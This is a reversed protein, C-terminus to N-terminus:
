INEIVGPVNKAKGIYPNLRNKFRELEISSLRDTRDKLLAVADIYIKRVEAITKLMTLVRLVSASDPLQQLQIARALDQVEALIYFTPDNLLMQSAQSESQIQWVLSFVAQSYRTELNSIAAGVIEREEKSIKNAERREKRLQYITFLIAVLAGLAQVWAAWEGKEM